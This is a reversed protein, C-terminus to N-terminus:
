PNSGLSAFFRHRHEHEEFEDRFVLGVIGGTERFLWPNRQDALFGAPCLTVLWRRSAHEEFEDRFVLGRKGSFGPIERTRSLDPRASRVSQARAHEPNPKILINVLKMLHFRETM